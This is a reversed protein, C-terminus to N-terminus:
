RDDESLLRDVDNKLREVNEFFAKSEMAIYDALRDSMIKKGYVAFISALDIETLGEHYPHSVNVRVDRLVNYHQSIVDQLAKLESKLKREAKGNILEQLKDKTM